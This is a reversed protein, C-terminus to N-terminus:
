FRVLDNFLNFDVWTLKAPTRMVGLHLNADGGLRFLEGFGRRKEKVYTTQVCPHLQQHKLQLCTESGSMWPLPTVNCHCNKNIPKIKTGYINRVQMHAATLDLGHQIAQSSTMGSRCTIFNGPTYLEAPTVARVCSRGGDSKQSFTVSVTSERTVGSRKLYLDSRRKYGQGTCLFDVLGSFLSSLSHPLALRCPVETRWLTETNM